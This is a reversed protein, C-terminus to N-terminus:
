QKLNTITTFAKVTSQVAGIVRRVDVGEMTLVLVPLPTGLWILGTRPGPNCATAPM